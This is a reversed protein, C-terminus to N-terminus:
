RSVAAKKTPPTLSRRLEDIEETKLRRRAKQLMTTFYDIEDDSAPFGINGKPGDSTVVVKGAEDLFVFWPIGGKGNANYREFVEKAGTMRDQDIKVVVFDRGVLEAIRPQELWTDLKRCWGCWPAGIHLWVGRESKAAESLAGNLSTEAKLPEAQHVTLFEQLAKSDCGLEGDDTLTLFPEGIQGALVKGAADLVTLSPVSLPMEYHRYLDVNKEGMGVDVHVVVYEYLLAKKLAPDSRFCKDLLLCKGCWNGGWQILVRRNERMALALAAEIDAKADAKEDYVPKPADPGKPETAPDAGIIITKM